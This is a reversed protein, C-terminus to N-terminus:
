NSYLLNYITPSDFHEINKYITVKPHDLVQFTEESSDDNIEYGFISPYSTFEAVKQFGLKGEFLLRYYKGTLPYKDPLNILTGYLRRSNFVLYDAKPLENAYYDLKKSNDADYITLQNRNFYEPTLQGIAIPLGDDWHEGTVVSNRPINQYMWESASIRTQPRIYISFFALAWLFTIIIFFGTVLIGTSKFKKVLFTLLAGAAIVLFPLLPVMYRIFKAHWSGIYIFYIIPFSLFILLKADKKRIMMYILFIIGIIGPLALPGMQWFLNILQYLYQKTAIFQLTYPVSFAGTVVGSEYRMSEIFKNWSLFTYPSFLTFVFFTIISFIILYIIKILIDSKKQLVSIFWTLLPIVIFSASTTKAALSLGSVLGIIIFKKLSPASLFNISLLTILSVCFTIFSETVGYHATQISSVTFTFFFASLYATKQDFLKKALLFVIIITILSFSASYFRGILNIQNWELVWLNDRSIQNLIEGTARYLYVPLGGYAFFEPDLNDFFSIRSVAMDINREDPHFYNDKDWNLNYFRLMVALSLITIWFITVQKVKLFKM